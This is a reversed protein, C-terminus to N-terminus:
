SRPTSSMGELSVPQTTSRRPHWLLPETWSTIHLSPNRYQKSPTRTHCHLHFDVLTSRFRRQSFKCCNRRPFSLTPSGWDTVRVGSKGDFGDSSSRTWTPRGREWHVLFTWPLYKTLDVNRVTRSTNRGERLKAMLSVLLKTYILRISM